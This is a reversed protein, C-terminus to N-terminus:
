RAPVTLPLMERDGVAEGEWDALVVGVGVQYTM